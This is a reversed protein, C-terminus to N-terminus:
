GDYLLSHLLEPTEPQKLCRSVKEQDSSSYKVNDLQELDQDLMTEIEEDIYMPSEFSKSLYSVGQDTSNITENITKQIESETIYVMSQFNNLQHEQVGRNEDVNIQQQQQGNISNNSSEPNMQHCKLQHLKLNGTQSFNRNCYPCSYPKEGSHYRAHRRLKYNTAFIKGCDTCTPSTDLVSPCHSNLISSSNSDVDAHFTVLHSQLSVKYRFSQQCNACQYEKKGEHREKHKTLIERQNFSM